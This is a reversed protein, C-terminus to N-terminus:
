MESVRGPDILLSNLATTLSGLGCWAPHGQTQFSESLHFYGELGGELMAMRFIQKGELSSFAVGPARLERRHFTGEM